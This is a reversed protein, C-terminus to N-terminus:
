RIIVSVGKLVWLMPYYLSMGDAFVKVVTPTEGTRIKMKKLSQKESVKVRALGCRDEEANGEIGRNRRRKSNKDQSDQGDM